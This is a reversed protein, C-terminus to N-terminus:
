VHRDPWYMMVFSVFRLSCGLIVVPGDLIVLMSSASRDLERNFKMPHRPSSMEAHAVPLWSAYAQLTTRQLLELLTGTASLGADAGERQHHM